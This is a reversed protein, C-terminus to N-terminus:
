IFLEICKQFSLVDNYYKWNSMGIIKKKDKKKKGERKFGAFLFFISFYMEWTCKFTANTECLICKPKYIHVNSHLCFNEGPYQTCWLSRLLVMLLTGLDTHM